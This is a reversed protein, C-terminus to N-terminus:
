LLRDASDDAPWWRTVACSSFLVPALKIHSGLHSLRPNSTVNLLKRSMTFPFILRRFAIKLRIMDIKSGSLRRQGTVIPYFELAVFRSIPSLIPRRVVRARSRM